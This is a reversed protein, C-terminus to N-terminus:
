DILNHIYNVLKECHHEQSNFFLEQEPFVRSDRSLCEQLYANIEEKNTGVHIFEPYKDILEPVESSVVEIGAALYDMVKNPNINKVLDNIRYPVLGLKAGSLYSPLQAHLKFGLFYINNEKELEAIPSYPEVKGIFVFSVNPNNRALFGILEEDLLSKVGGIYMVRPEPIMQLDEPLITNKDRARSMLSMNVPNPLYYPNSCYTIKKQMVYKAAFLSIDAKKLIDQELGRILDIVSPKSFDVYEDYCDYILLDPKLESAYHFFSPHMVWLVLKADSRRLANLNFSLAKSNLWSLGSNRYALQDHIPLIPRFLQYPPNQNKELRSSWQKLKGPQRWWSTLLDIPRNLVIMRDFEFLAASISEILSKRHFFSWEGTSFVILDIKSISKLSM